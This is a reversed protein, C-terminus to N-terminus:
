VTQYKSPDAEQRLFEWEGSEFITFIFMMLILRRIGMQNISKGAENKTGFVNELTNALSNTGGSIINALNKLDM